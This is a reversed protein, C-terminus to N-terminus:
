CYFKDKNWNLPNNYIYGRVENLEKEDRIVRDYFREQWEFENNFKRIRKTCISKFQGIISGLSDPKLTRSANKAKTSVVRHITEPILNGTKNDYDKILMIIAHFHNPMVIFEDLLVYHRIKETKLWEEEIIKGEESIIMEENILNGFFKVNDKTCITVYYGASNTYDWGKLRTSEIRYKNKFLSL